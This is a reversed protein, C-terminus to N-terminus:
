VFDKRLKEIDEKTMQWNLAGLNEKLHKYNKMKPIAVVSPQSILWNIAVQIPTKHYKECMEKMISNINEAFFGNQIPQWSIFIIDNKQCYELIGNKEPERFILNYHCQNVIIKNDTVSQLDKLKRVNFNSVGINKVLGENKIRDFARMTKKIPIEDNPHHILYLDLYDTQLRKLSAEITKLVDDYMLYEKRIKSTVFLKKRNYKRIAKGVLIETYGDAYKEATDISTIGNNIATQIAKIDDEDNNDPNRLFDGGMKWTGFGLIPIEFGDALKKTPVHM